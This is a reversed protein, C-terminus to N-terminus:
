ADPSCLCRCVRCCHLRGGRGQGGDQGGGGDDGDVRAAGLALKGDDPAIRDLATLSGSSRPRCVFRTHGLKRVRRLFARHIAVRGDSRQHTEPIREEEEARKTTRCWFVAVSERQRSRSVQSRTSM